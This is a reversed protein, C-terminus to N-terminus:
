KLQSENLESFCLIQKICTKCYWPDQSNQLKRYCFKRINNCKIHVWLNCIDCCVAHNKAVDKACIGCPYKPTM